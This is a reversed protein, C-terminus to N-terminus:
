KNELEDIRTKLEKIENLADQLAAVIVPTIRGYDMSMMEDSEADGSVAEPVVEQMEQAIFGHVQLEDPNDIWTHTVPKMDMLKDTADAIPEINEKLRRDSTTNYTIGATSATISGVQGTGGASTFFRIREATSGALQLCWDSNSTIGIGGASFLDTNNATWSHVGNNGQVIDGNAKIRVRETAAGGDGTKFIINSSDTDTNSSNYMDINALGGSVKMTLSVGSLVGNNGNTNELQLANYAGYSSREVHLRADPNTTGIGVNGGEAQLAIQYAANSSITKGQINILGGTTTGLLLQLNDSTNRISSVYESGTSHDVQLKYGPSTTGIGVNGSPLLFNGGGHMDFSLDKSSNGRVRVASVGDYYFDIFRNANESIDSTVNIKNLYLNSYGTSASEAIAAYTGSTGGRMNIGGTGNNNDWLSIDVTGMHLMHDDRIYFDGDVDLKKVPNDTGIGVNGSGNVVAKTSGGIAFNIAKGGSATADITIPYGADIHFGTTARTDYDIGVKSYVTSDSNFTWNIFGNTGSAGSKIWLNADTADLQLDGAIELTKAPDTTGIGLRGSPTMVFKYGPSEGSTGANTLHYGLNNDNGGGTTGQAIVSWRVGTDTAALTFGSGVANSSTFNTTDWTDNDKIELRVAPNNTGIGVKGNALISIHDVTTNSSIYLTGNVHTIASKTTSDNDEIQIGGTYSSDGAKIHLRSDPDDTGIGVNGGNKITLRTSSGELIELYDTATHGQAIKWQNAAGIRELGLVAAGAASPDIILNGTLTGGALPLKTAISNTVTTSFNADDGLAAALENLTDLTGPSSDVLSAVETDVYAKVSQQTPMHAASNSSMNDEDVMKLTLRADARADTFFLNTHETIDATTIGDVFVVNNDALDRVRSM